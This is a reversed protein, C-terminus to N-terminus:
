PKRLNKVIGQPIILKSVEIGYKRVLVVYPILTEFSRFDIEVLIIKLFKSQYLTATIIASHNNNILIDIDYNNEKCYSHLEEAAETTALNRYLGVAKIGYEHSLKQATEVIEKEQNSVLILDHKQKALETAYQLGIGSSAGTVLALM